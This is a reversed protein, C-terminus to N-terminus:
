VLAALHELTEQQATLIRQGNALQKKNEVFAPGGYSLRAAVCHEPQLAEMLDTEFLPSFKKYEALTLDLLYKHEKIAYAVCKGVVAHAKRFPLGKRVLYDALDTANSFDHHVAAQMKDKNVKMTALMQSYVALSFRLTDVTDFLGEKDEQLDKNYTLPLGKLTVLLAQLHGYIRGTKGRVLEAIDPNKKQPMMSSGTAFADDLEIFGFETSSWLCMEESLRSLHMMTISAFNLFDLIYDRDSVADMSNPYVVAFNLEKAVAFRDIPFTTGAIAGAGLPMMDAGDWVSLLRRFDRQLMNFYALLHHCLTLPQARQLHTYGPMLTKAHEKAVSLLTEEFQLLLEGINVVEKKVYMHMDLAVQDNRSRATHLRAGAAGIRETLRAEINMHIDELDQEFTFNGKEIDKLIGKLGRVIAAGDKKSIIGCQALMKAHAMSGRIDEHYLRKDFSISANFADVLKNTEKSFRGGWLKTM